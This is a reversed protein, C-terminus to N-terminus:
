DPALLEDFVPLVADDNTQALWFLAERRISRPRDSEVLARLAPIARDHPLQSLAFVAKKRVAASADHDIAHSIVAEAGDLKRQSVWFLSEGRVEAEPHSRAMRVLQQAAGPARSESLCFVLHRRLEDDRGAALADRVVEYGATGREEALWFYADRRVDRTSGRKAISALATTAEDGAHHALAHLAMGRKSGGKGAAIHALLRVSADADVDELTVVRLGQADVPCSTGVALARDFSEPGRRLMVRLGEGPPPPPDDSSTGFGNTGDQLRCVRDGARKGDRDFCCPVSRPDNAEVRYELWEGPALRALAAAPDNAAAAAFPFPFLLTCFLTAIRL